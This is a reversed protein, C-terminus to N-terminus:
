NQCTVKKGGKELKEQTGLGPSQSHSKDATERSRHHCTRWRHPVLHVCGPLSGTTTGTRNRNDTSRDDYKGGKKLNKEEVGKKM